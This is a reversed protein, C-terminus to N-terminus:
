PSLTATPSFTVSPAVVEPTKLPPSNPPPLDTSFGEGRKYRFFSVRGPFIEIDLHKSTEGPILIRYWGAPLDGIVLNESYYPDSNVPGEGYSVVWYQRGSELSRVLVRILSLWEDDFNKIQGVLLGWGQPPVVWLEPNRSRSFSNDGVRVEFHLHPGTVKGTAGSLGVLDGAQIPQGVVLHTESLHGYVTYLTQGQYGFDHRIVVALGYPDDPNHEGSLLGYGSWAVRGSGAAYVPSGVKLPIDIGTHVFNRFLVGGYRYDELAWVQADALVPRTFLFHDHPTPIWPTPYLPPRWNAITDTIPQRVNLSYPNVLPSTETAKLETTLPLKSAEPPPETPSLIINAAHSDEPVPISPTAVPM